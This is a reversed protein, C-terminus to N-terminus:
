ASNKSTGKLQDPISHELNIHFLNAERRFSDKQVSLFVPNVVKDLKHTKCISEYFLTSDCSSIIKVMEVERGNWQPSNYSLAPLMKEFAKVKENEFDPYFFFQYGIAQFKDSLIQFNKSVITTLPEDGECGVYFISNALIPTTNYFDEIDGLEEFLHDHM